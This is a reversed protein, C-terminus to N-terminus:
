ASHKRVQQAKALSARSGEQLLFALGHHTGEVYIQELMAEKKKELPPVDPGPFVDQEEMHVCRFVPASLTAPPEHPLEREWGGKKGMKESTSTHKRNHQWHSTEKLAKHNKMCVEAEKQKAQQPISRPFTMRQIDLRTANRDKLTMIIQLCTCSKSQLFTDLVILFKGDPCATHKGPVAAQLHFPHSARLVHSELHLRRATLTQAGDQSSLPIYPIYAGAGSPLCGATVAGSCLLSSSHQSTGRVGVKFCIQSLQAKLHAAFNKKKKKKQQGKPHIELQKEIATPLSGTKSGQQIM